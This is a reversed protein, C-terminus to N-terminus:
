RGQKRTYFLLIVGFTLLGWLLFLSTYKPGIERTCCTTKGYSGSHIIKNCVGNLYINLEKSVMSEMYHLGDITSEHVLEEYVANMSEPVLPFDGKFPLDRLYRNFRRGNQSL